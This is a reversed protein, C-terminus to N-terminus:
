PVFRTCPVIGEEIERLSQRYSTALAEIGNKAALLGALTKIEPGGNGTTEGFSAIHKKYIEENIETMLNKKEPYDYYLGNEEMMMILKEAKLYIATIASPMDNDLPTEFSYLPDNNNLIPMINMELLSNIRKILNGTEKGHIHEYDFLIQGVETIKEGFYPSFIRRISEFLPAQGLAVCNQQFDIRDEEELSNKVNLYQDYTYGLRDAGRIAAGSLFLVWYNDKWTDSIYRAINRTISEKHFDAQLKGTIKLIKIPKDM